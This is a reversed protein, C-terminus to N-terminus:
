QVVLGAQINDIDTQSWDTSTNPNQDWIDFYYAYSTSLGIDAGNYETSNTKIKQNVTMSSTQDKRISGCVQIGSISGISGTMNTMQSLISDSNTGYSYTSDGDPTPDNIADWNASVGSATFTDTDGDANPYITQIKRPGLADNNVTGSTDLIYLDDYYAIGNVVALQVVNFGAGTTGACTPNSSAPLNAVATGDVYLVVDTATPTGTDKVKVEVYHFGNNSFVGSQTLSITATWNGTRFYANGAGDLWVTFKATSGNSFSIICASGTYMSSSATTDNPSFYIAVGVVLATYNTSLNKKLDAWYDHNAYTVLKLSNGTAAPSSSSTYTVGVNSSNNSKSSWKSLIDTSPDYHDFGDLFILAM